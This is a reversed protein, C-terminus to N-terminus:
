EIRLDPPPLDLGAAQELGTVLEVLASGLQAVRKGKIPPVINGGSDGASRRLRSGYSGIIKDINPHFILRGLGNLQVYQEHGISRIIIERDSEM